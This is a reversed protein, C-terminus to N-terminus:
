GKTTTKFVLDRTIEERIRARGLSKALPTVVESEREAMCGLTATLIEGVDAQGRVLGGGELGVTQPAVLQTHLRAEEITTESRIRGAEDDLPIVNLLQDRQGQATVGECTVGALRSAGPEFEFEVAV